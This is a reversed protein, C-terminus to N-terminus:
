PRRRASSPSPSTIAPAAGRRPARSRPRSWTTARTRPHASAAAIAAGIAGYAPILAVNLLLAVCVSVVLVNRFQKEQGSMVLLIGVSGLAINIFQGVALIQLIAAGDPCDSGFISLIREPMAVFILLVPASCAVMLWVARHTTAALAQMDGRAYLEAFKPQVITSIALPAFSVLMATRWAVAYRSVDATGAWVGLMLTPSMQMAMYLVDGILLPRGSKLLERIPSPADQLGPGRPRGALARSWSIGGYTAAVGVAIVYAVAAGDVGWQQALLLTGGLAIGQPLIQFVLTSDRVRALGLLAKSVLMALSLPVVAIAMIRLPLALASDSFVSGALFDSALYLAAAILGSGIAGVALVERYGRRVLLWKDVSAHAAVFRLVANDLGARGVTAVATAITFALFYIGTAEAGLIRGLAVTLGFTLAAGLVRLSGAISAGRL